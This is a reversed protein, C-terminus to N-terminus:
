TVDLKPFKIKAASNLNGLVSRRGPTGVEIRERQRVNGFRQVGAHKREQMSRSGCRQAGQAGVKKSERWKASIGKQM